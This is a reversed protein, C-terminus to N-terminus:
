MKWYRDKHFQIVEGTTADITFSSTMSLLANPFPKYSINVRWIKKEDEEELQAFTIDFENVNLATRLHNEITNRLDNFSLHEGM